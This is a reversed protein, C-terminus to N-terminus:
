RAKSSPVSSEVRSQCVFRDYKFTTKNKLNLSLHQGNETHFATVPLVIKSEQSFDTCCRKLVSDPKLKLVLDRLFLCM